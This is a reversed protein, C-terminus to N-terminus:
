KIRGHHVHKLTDVLTNALRKLEAVTLGSEDLQGRHLKGYVSRQV